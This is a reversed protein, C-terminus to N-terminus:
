LISQEKNIIVINIGNCQASGLLPLVKDDQTLTRLHKLFKGSALINKVKKLNGRGAAMILKVNDYGEVDLDDKGQIVGHRSIFLEEVEDTAALMVATNRENDVENYKVNQQELLYQVIRAFGKNSARMLAVVDFFVCTYM